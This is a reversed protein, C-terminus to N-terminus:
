QGLIVAIDSCIRTMENVYEFKGKYKSPSFVELLHRSFKAQDISIELSHEAETRIKKLGSLDDADTTELTTNLEVAKAAKDVDGAIFDKPSVLRLLETKLGFVDSASSGENIKLVM